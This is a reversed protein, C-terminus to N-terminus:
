LYYRILKNVVLHSWLYRDEYHEFTSEYTAIFSDINGRVDVRVYARSHNYSLWEINAIINNKSLELSEDFTLAGTEHDATVIILTDEKSAAWQTASRVAEEFALTEMFVQKTQHGHAFKDIKAGEVMLFFGDENNLFDLSFTTLDALTPTFGGYPLIGPMLGLIRNANVDLESMSLALNDVGNSTFLDTYYAQNNKFESPNTGIMLDAHNTAYSHLLDSALDRRSAHGLFAGPTAGTIEDTTVVGTKKGLAKAHDILLPIERGFQDVAIRSNNVLVGTSLATGGAASDTYSTVVGDVGLKQGEAYPSPTGDYLTKNLAPDLMSLSRDLYFAESTLSDTVSYAYPKFGFSEDTFILPEEKYINVADVLKKGMGDGIFLIVNKYKSTQVVSAKNFPVQTIKSYLSRPSFLTLSSLIISLVLNNRKM